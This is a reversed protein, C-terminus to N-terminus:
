FNTHIFRIAGTSQRHALDNKLLRSDVTSGDIEAAIDAYRDLAM